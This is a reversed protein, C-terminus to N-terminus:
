RGDDDGLFQRLFLARRATERLNCYAAMPVAMTGQHFDWYFACTKDRSAIWARQMDRLKTVQAPELTERLRGYARNLMADWVAHERSSCKVMDATSRADDSELCPDAVVGICAEGGQPKDKAAKLCNQVAAANRPDPKDSQAMSQGALSLLVALSIGAIRKM